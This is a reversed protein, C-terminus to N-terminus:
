LNRRVQADILRRGNRERQECRYYAKVVLPLLETTDTKSRRPLLTPLTFVGTLRGKDYTSTGGDSLVTPREYTCM